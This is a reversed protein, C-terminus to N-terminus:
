EKVADDTLYIRYNGSLALMAFLYLCNDYYRRKDTRLPTNWFLDVCEKAYKGGSALAAQANTAIIAVPHMAPRDIVAGDIAYTQYDRDPVNECFFAQVNGANQKQWEDADFWSNDLSMNAVTRYADSFYYDKGFMLRPSGDYETYEACLGTKEHCALHLFERSAKAAEKWFARDEPNCMMAFLDYFHPLHYSPDTYDAEPVFKIQHNRPDWMPCGPENEGKHVCTHLIERAQEKYNYPAEGDGWRASAFLLAMAFYEEGDPAPGDFNRTGDLKHSWSFYGKYPGDTQYMYTKSWNWIQDFEKKKNMQVCFMMGYSMGESRADDNGTDTIYGLDDAVAEFIRSDSYFMENFVDEMRKEVAEKSYGMETLVNRYAGTYFAGNKSM